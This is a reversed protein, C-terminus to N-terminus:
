ILWLFLFPVKLTYQYGPDDSMLYPWWLNANPIELSDAYMGTSDLSSTHSVVAHREKDLITVTYKLNTTGESLGETTM